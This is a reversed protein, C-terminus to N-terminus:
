RRFEYSAEFIARDVIWIDSTDEISRVIYDGAKGKLEGWKAVVRFPQDITTAQVWKGDPKPDFREFGDTDHEGSANYTELLKKHAQPWYEGQIGRCLYDGAKLQQIGELSEIQQATEVRRAWLPKTKRAERMRTAVAALLDGDPNMWEFKPDSIPRENLSYGAERITEMIWSFVSQKCGPDVEYPEKKGNLKLKYSNEPISEFNAVLKQIVNPAKTPILEWDPLLAITSKIEGKLRKLKKDAEKLEEQLKPLSEPKRNNIIKETIKAVAGLTSSREEWIKELSEKKKITDVQGTPHFVCIIRKWVSQDLENIRDYLTCLEWMCYWSKFYKDSLFVIAVDSDIAKEIFKAINQYKERSYKDRKVKERPLCKLLRGEVYNVGATYFTQREDPDWGYSLFISPERGVPTFEKQIKELAETYSGSGGPCLSKVLKEFEELHEKTMSPSHMYDIKGPTIGNPSDQSYELSTYKLLIKWPVDERDEEPLDAQQMRRHRDYTGQVLIANRYFSADTGYAEAIARM